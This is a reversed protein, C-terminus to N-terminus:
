KWYHIMVGIFLQIVVLAGTLLWQFKQLDQISAAIHPVEATVIENNSVRLKLDTIATVVVEHENRTIYAVRESEIQRRYENMSDLRRDIDKAAIELASAAANVKEEVRTLRM